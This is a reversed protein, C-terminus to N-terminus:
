TWTSQVDICYGTGGCTHVAPSTIYGYTSKLQVLFDKKMQDEIEMLKNATDHYHDEVKDCISYTMNNIDTIDMKVLSLDHNLIGLTYNQQSLAQNVTGLTQHQQSLTQNLTRLTNHYEAMTENLSSMDRQMSSIHEKIDNFLPVLKRFQFILTHGNQTCLVVM